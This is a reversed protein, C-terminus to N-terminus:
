AEENEDAEFPQHGYKGDSEKVLKTVKREVEELKDSCFKILNMGEEFVKLSEELSLDGEELDHVIEELRKMAEEFKKQAMIGGM